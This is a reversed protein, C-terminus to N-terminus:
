NEPCIDHNHVIEHKSVIWIGASNIQFQIMAKCCKRIDVKSYCKNLKEKEHAKGEKNYM